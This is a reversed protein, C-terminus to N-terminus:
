EIKHYILQSPVHQIENENIRKYFMENLMIKYKLINYNEDYKMNIKGLFSDNKCYTSGEKYIILTDTESKNNLWKGVFFDPNYFAERAEKAKIAEKESLRKYNGTEGNFNAKLHNNDDLLNFHIKVVGFLSSIEAILTETEKDYTAQFETDESILNFKKGEKKIEIVAGIESTEEQWYGIYKDEKNRSCGILLVFLLLTLINLRQKM